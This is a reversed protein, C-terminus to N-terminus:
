MDGAGLGGLAVLAVPAGVRAVYQKKCPKALLCSPTLQRPMPVPLPYVSRCRRAVAGAQISPLCPALQCSPSFTSCSFWPLTIVAVGVVIEVGVSCLLFRSGNASLPAVLVIKLCESM